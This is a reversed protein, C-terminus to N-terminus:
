EDTQWNGIESGGPTAAWIDPKQGGNRTGKPDYQYDNGWPDILPNGAEHEIYGGGVLDKLSEPYEGHKNRYVEAAESLQMIDAKARGVKAENLYKSDFLLRLDSSLILALFTIVAFSIVFTRM